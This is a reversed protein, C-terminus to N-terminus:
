AGNVLIAVQRPNNGTMAKPELPAVPVAAPTGARSAVAGQDDAGAM